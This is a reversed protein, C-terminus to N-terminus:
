TEISDKRNQLHEISNSERPNTMTLREIKFGLERKRDDLGARIGCWRLNDESLLDTTSYVQTQSRCSSGLDHTIAELFARESHNLSSAHQIQTWQYDEGVSLRFLFRAKSEVM